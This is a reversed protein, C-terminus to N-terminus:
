TGKVPEGSKERFEWSGGPSLYKEYQKSYDPVQNKSEGTPQGDKYVEANYGAGEEVNSTEYKGKKKKLFDFLYGGSKAVKQVFNSIATKLQQETGNSGYVLDGFM